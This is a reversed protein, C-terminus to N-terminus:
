AHAISEGGDVVAYLYSADDAIAFGSPTESTLAVASTSTGAIPDVIAIEGADNAAGTPVAVYIKKQSPDWALDSGQMNLVTLNTAISQVTFPLGTTTGGGPAPTQVTVSFTGAATLDSAPIQATLSTSSVYTTPTSSGNWLVQSATVFGTGIVTLPFAPGNQTASTPSIQSIAPVPNSPAVVTFGVVNSLGGGPPLTQITINDTGATTLDSAAIQATLSTSSVYTTPRQKGNWLVQSAAVFQTGTVTLTFAPGSVDASAPSISSIAPVPNPAPTLTFNLAASTGGGPAPTQVNVSATGATALDAGPITASLSTSSNFTTDIISGNWYISSTVAFGSGTVTIRVGASGAVASAPSISSLSPSPNQPPTTGGKSGGCGSNVLSSVSVLCFFLVFVLRKLNGGSAKEM